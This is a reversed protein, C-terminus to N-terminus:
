ISFSKVGETLSLGSPLGFTFQRAIANGRIIADGSSSYLSYDFCTKTYQQSREDFESNLQMIDQSCDQCRVTALPFSYVNNKQNVIDVPVPNFISFLNLGQLPHPCPNEINREREIPESHITSDIKHDTTLRLNHKMFQLLHYNLGIPQNKCDMVNRCYPTIQEPQVLFLLKKIEQDSPFYPIYGGHYLKCVAKMAVIIYMVYGFNISFTVDSSKTKQLVLFNGQADYVNQLNIFMIVKVMYVLSFSDSYFSSSLWSIKQIKYVSPKYKPVIFYSIVTMLLLSMVAGVTISPNKWLSQMALACVLVILSTSRAILIYKINKKKTNVLLWDEPLPLKLLQEVLVPFTAALKEIEELRKRMIALRKQRRGDFIDHAIGGCIGAGMMAFLHLISLDPAALPILLYTCLELTNNYYHPPIKRGLQIGLPYTLLYCGIASIITAFINRFGTSDDPIFRLLLISVTLFIGGIATIPVGTRWFFPPTDLQIEQDIFVEDTVKIKIPLKKEFVKKTIFFTGDNLNFGSWFASITYYYLSLDQSIVPSLFFFIITETGALTNRNVIIWDCLESM